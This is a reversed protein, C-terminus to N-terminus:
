NFLTLETIDLVKCFKLLTLVTYHGSEARFIKYYQHKECGANICLETISMGKLARAQAIQSGIKQLEKQHNEM